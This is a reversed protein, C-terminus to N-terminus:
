RFIVFRGIHVLAYRQDDAPMDGSDDEPATNNAILSAPLTIDDMSVPTGADEGAPEDDPTNPEDQALTPDNVGTNNTAIGQGATTAQDPNQAPNSLSASDASAGEPSSLPCGM